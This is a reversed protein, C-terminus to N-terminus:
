NKSYILIDDIFVIVSRDLMPRCVRNMLDMFAAPANTLDFSMVLFEYHGYRTRFATKPIDEDRIKLQHYGSRLDIKSFWSAGQLQDFLDDIRPLPHKNKITLKNLERYDICMRMSRDKKKVFLVPARWPSISPRIFGRDLLEQLQSMLEKMESPALRYTAKVVPKAGPVLDIRFEVEREPPIGPLEELFVDPFDCVVPMDKLEKTKEKSDIAYALYAENGRTMFKVAKIMSIIRIAPILKDGHITIWNGGPNQIQVAKQNCIIQADKAALWDMGLVVNFGELIMPYLRVLFKHGELNIFCDQIVEAVKMTKGIATEVEFTENLRVTPRDLSPYFDLSVFSRSAGSYFLVTAPVNNVLFTGSVVDPLSKAEETTLTYARTKAKPAEKEKGDKISVLTFIKLTPCEIIRHGLEGCKYCRLGSKNPCNTAIHGPKGCSYCTNM